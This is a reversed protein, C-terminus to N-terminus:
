LPPNMIHHLTRLYAALLRSRRGELCGGRTENNETEYNEVIASFMHNLGTPDAVGRLQALGEYLEVASSWLLSCVQRFADPERRLDPAFVAALYERFTEKSFDVEGLKLRVHGQGVFEAMEFWMRDFSLSPNGIRLGRGIRLITNLHAQYFSDLQHVNSGRPLNEVFRYFPDLEERLEQFHAQSRAKSFIDDPVRTRDASAGLSLSGFAGQFDDDDPPMRGGFRSAQSASEEAQLQAIFERSLREEDRRAEEEANLWLALAKSAEDDQRERRRYTMEDEDQFMSALARVRESEQLAQKLSTSPRRIYPAGGSVACQRSFVTEDTTLAHALQEDNGRREFAAAYHRVGTSRPFFSRVDGLVQPILGVYEEVNDLCTLLQGLAKEERSGSSVTERVKLCVRQAAKYDGREIYEEFGDMAFSSSAGLALFVMM